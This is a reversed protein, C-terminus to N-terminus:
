EVFESSCEISKLVTFKLPILINIDIGAVEWNANVIGRCKYLKDDDFKFFQGLRENYYIKPGDYCVAESVKGIIQALSANKRGFVYSVNDETLFVKDKVIRYRGGILNPFSISSACWINNILGYFSPSSFLMSRESDFKFYPDDRLYYDEKKLIHGSTLKTIVDLGTIYTTM